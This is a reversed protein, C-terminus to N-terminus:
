LPQLRRQQADLNGTVATFDNATANFEFNAVAGTNMTLSGITLTGVSNGPALIGGAVGGATGSITVSGQINGITPTSTYVQRSYRGAQILRRFCCAEM